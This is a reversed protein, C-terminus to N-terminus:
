KNLGSLHVGNLGDNAVTKYILSLHHDVELESIKALKEFSEEDGIRYLSYAALIKISRDQESKLLETLDPAVESIKYYGAMFVASKRLGNNESKIGAKLNEIANGYKTKAIESYNQAKNNQALLIVASLILVSLLNVKKM